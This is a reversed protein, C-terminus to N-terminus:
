QPNEKEVAPQIPSAYLKTGDPLNDIKGEVSRHEGSGGINWHRVVLVHEQKGQQEVAALIAQWQDRKEELRKITEKAGELQVTTQCLDRVRSWKQIDYFLFDIQEQILATNIMSKDVIM